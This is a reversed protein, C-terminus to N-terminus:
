AFDVSADVSPASFRAAALALMNVYRHSTIECGGKERARENTRENTEDKTRITINVAHCVESM